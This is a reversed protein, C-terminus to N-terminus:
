ENDGPWPMCLVDSLSAGNYVLAVWMDESMVTGSPVMNSPVDGYMYKFSIYASQSNDAITLYCVLDTEVRKWEMLGSNEVATFGADVLKCSVETSKIDNYMRKIPPTWARDRRVPKHAVDQENYETGIPESPFNTM